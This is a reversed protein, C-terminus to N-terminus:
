DVGTGDGTHGRGGTPSRPEPLATAAARHTGGRGALGERKMGELLAIGEATKGMPRSGTAGIRPRDEHVRFLGSWGREISQEVVARVEYGDAHLTALTRLSLEQAKHTWGKGSGRFSSWDRWVDPPLWQPLDRRTRTAKAKAEETETETDTDPRTESVNCARKMRHARVRDTSSDSQFQRQEWALPQFTDRDILGVEALRRVVEDLERRALGLKVAVKRALLAPDGPKDLLGSGKCCLLAVYHWRDEFALLRLKEDDVIETYVRFWPFRAVSM